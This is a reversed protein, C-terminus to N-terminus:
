MRRYVIVGARAAGADPVLGQASLLARLERVGARGYVDRHIGAIFTDVGTLDAHRLFDREAGEIDMVITDHPFAAKLDAYRLVPVRVATTKEPKHLVETPADPASLVVAHRVAAVEGLGNHAYLAAVHEILAPNAEISLLSAPRCTRALIAGVRGSGAGIELIRAGPGILATGAATERREDRVETMSRIMNPGFRPASPVEAGHLRAVIGDSLDLADAQDTM